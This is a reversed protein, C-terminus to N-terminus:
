ATEKIGHAAEIARAFTFLGIGGDDVHHLLAEIMADSLPKAPAPHTDPALYESGLAFVGFGQSHLEHLLNLGHDINDGASRKTAAVSASGLKYAIINGPQHEYTYARKTEPLDFASGKMGVLCAVPEPEVAQAIHAPHTYLPTITGGREEIRDQHLPLENADILDYNDRERLQYAVPEPEVAKPKNIDGTAIYRKMEEESVTGYQKLHYYVPEPEVAQSAEYAARLKKEADCPQGDNIEGLERRYGKFSLLAEEIISKDIQVTSM